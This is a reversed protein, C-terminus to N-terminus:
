EYKLGYYNYLKKLTKYTSKTKGLEINTITSKTCGVAKAVQEMSINKRKRLERLFSLPKKKIEIYPNLRYNNGKLKLSVRKRKGKPKKWKELLSVGALIKSLKKSM